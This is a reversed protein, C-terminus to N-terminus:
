FPKFPRRTLALPLAPLPLCVLMAAVPCVSTDLDDGSSDLGREARFGVGGSLPHIKFASQGSSRSLFDDLGRQM